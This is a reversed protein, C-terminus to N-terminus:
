ARKDGGNITSLEERVNNLHKNELRFFNWIGRRIIELSAVVALMTQTSHKFPLKFDLVTQIWAFRLLVNLIMAIFYVKKQPILLKDRLWPNESTRNLLGWDHVFDWYTGFIAAVVSFIIAIVRWANQGPQISYATRFCVAVITLFHKVGNWRHDTNKHKEDVLRRLCQLLCTVFPIVAVIFFFSKYANSEACTNKRHKFDGWGYYCIYFAFSRLAQVQSTFQACFFSDSFSVEYLPAAICHFLCTLYFIRNSYYFLKFPLFLVGFIGILVFLPLLETVAQYDKTEPDVEMDLNALVCLLAFVGISFAVLLVQRHGLETGQKFNFIKSYNVKYRRWFYLNAAYMIIHLMVFGFWSYLPFMTNMYVDQGPNQLINRTRIIAVLAVILSFVCGASFGTSFTLRHRERTVKPRLIKKGETRNSKAFHKIFNDEVRKKLQVVADTRGLDSADVFKMFPKRTGRLTIKDFKKLIKSFAMVNSSSYTKLDLLDRYLNIYDEKLKKRGKRNSNNKISLILKMWWSTNVQDFSEMAGNDEAEEEEENLQGARSSEGEEIMQSEVEMYKGGAHTYPSIGETSSAIGSAFPTMEEETGSGSSKILNAEIEKTLEAEKALMEKVKEGYFKSVKSFEKDLSRFFEVEYAGGGKEDLFTTECGGDVTAKVLIPETTATMQLGEEVDHSNGLRQSGQTLLPLGSFSTTKRNLGGEHHNKAVRCTPENAYKKLSRYDMYADQHQWEPRMQSSFEKGFTM